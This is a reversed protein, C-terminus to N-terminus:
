RIKRRYVAATKSKLRIELFGDRVPEEVRGVNYGYSGTEMLREMVGGEEIGIEWVPIRVSRDTGNNVVIVLQNEGRFRGYAILGDGALLPKM